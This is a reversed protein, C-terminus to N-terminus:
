GERVLLVHLREYGFRPRAMSLCATGVAISYPTDVRHDGTRGQRKRRAMGAHMGAFDLWSQLEASGASM